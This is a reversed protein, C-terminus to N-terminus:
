SHLTVKIDPRERRSRRRQGNLTRAGSRRVRRRERPSGGRVALVLMVEQCIVEQCAGLKFSATGTDPNTPECPVGTEEDAPWTVGRAVHLTSRTLSGWLGPRHSYYYYPPGLAFQTV